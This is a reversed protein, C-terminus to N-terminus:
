ITQDQEAKGYKERYSLAWAIVLDRIWGVRMLRDAGREVALTYAAVTGVGMGENLDFKTATAWQEILLFLSPALLALWKLSTQQKTM